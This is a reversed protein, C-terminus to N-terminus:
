HAGRKKRRCFAHVLLLIVILFPFPISGFLALMTARNGGELTMCLHVLSWCAFFIPLIRGYLPSKRTSLFVQLGIAIAGLVPWVVMLLFFSSYGRM